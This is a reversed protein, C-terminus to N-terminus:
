IFGWTQGRLIYSINARSVGYLMAIERHKWAAISRIERVDEATLKVTNHSGYEVADVTNASKTKWSVHHQNVCGEDGKGCSHAAHHKPSPPPGHADECALKSVLMSRGPWAIVAYGQKNRAYPWILCDLTNHTRVVDLYFQRPEGKCARTM